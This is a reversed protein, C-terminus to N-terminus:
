CSCTISLTFASRLINTHQSFNGPTSQESSALLSTSTNIYPNAEIGSMAQGSETASGDLFSTAPYGFAPEQPALTGNAAQILSASSTRLEPNERTTSVAMRALSYPYLQNMQLELLLRRVNTGRWSFHRELEQISHHTLSEWAKSIQPDHKILKCIVRDRSWMAETHHKKLHEKDVHDCLSEIDEFIRSETCIGCPLRRRKLRQFIHGDHVARPHVKKIHNRVDEQRTWSQVADEGCTIRHRELDLLWNDTATRCQCRLKSM